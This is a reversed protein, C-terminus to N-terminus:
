FKKFYLIEGESELELASSTNKRITFSRSLSNWGLCTDCEYPRFSDWVLDVKIEGGSVTYNGFGMFTETDTTLKLYQFVNRDFSYFITDVNQKKGDSTEIQNLQWRGELNSNEDDNCSYFGLLSFFLILLSLKRFNM